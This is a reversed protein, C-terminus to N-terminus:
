QIKVKKTDQLERINDILKDNKAACEFYFDNWEKLTLLVDTGDYVTKGTSDKKTSKLVPTDNSCKVLLNEQVLNSDTNTKVTSSCSTISLLVIGMFFCAFILYIKNNM